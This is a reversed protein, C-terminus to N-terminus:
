HPSTPRLDISGGAQRGAQGEEEWEGGSRFAFIRSGDAHRLTGGLRAYRM